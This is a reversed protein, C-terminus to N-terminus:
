ADPEATVTLKCSAFQEVYLEAREQHTGLLLSLGTTHAEHARAIADERSLATLQIVTKVVSEIENVDDNHLIVKWPPLRTPTIQQASPRPLPKAPSSAGSGPENFSDINKGKETM